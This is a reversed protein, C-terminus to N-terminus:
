YYRRDTIVAFALLDLLYPPPVRQEREWDTVTRYPLDYRTAFNTRPMGTFSRICKLTRDHAYTWIPWLYYESDSMKRVPEAIFFAERDDTKEAISLLERFTQYDM